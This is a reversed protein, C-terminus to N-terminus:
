FDLYALAEKLFKSFHINEINKEVFKAIKIDAEDESAAKIPWKASLLPLKLAKLLAAVTSDGKRMEDYVVVSAPFQLDSNYDVDIMGSMIQTGEKGYVTQLAPQSSTDKKKKLLNIIDSLAM